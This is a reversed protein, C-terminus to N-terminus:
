YGSIPAETPLVWLAAIGASISAYLNSQSSGVIRVTSASCNQEHDAHLILLKNMASSLVPDVAYEETVQGFTMNLFNDVYELNNKPYVIPHGMKKKQIMAVLTPTKAILRTITM